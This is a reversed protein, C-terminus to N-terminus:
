RLRTASGVGVRCRRQPSHEVCRDGLALAVDLVESNGVPGPDSFQEVSVGIDTEVGGVCGHDGDPLAEVLGRDGGEVFSIKTDNSRGVGVGEFKEGSGGSVLWV